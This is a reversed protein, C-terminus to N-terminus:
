KEYWRAMKKVNVVRSQPLLRKTKPDRNRKHFAEMNKVGVGGAPRPRGLASSSSAALAPGVNKKTGLLINKIQQSTQAAARTPRKGRRPVTKTRPM